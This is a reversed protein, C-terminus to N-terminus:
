PEACLREYDEPTNVSLWARRIARPIEPTVVGPRGALMRPAREGREAMAELLARARPDFLAPMPEVRGDASRPLVVLTDDERQSLLWRAAVPEARPQDCAAIIWAARPEARLAALIGALPGGVGVADAVRRLGAVVPLGNLEEPLEGLLVVEDVSPELAAVAVELLTRGRWSLAAKPAGMRRSAGGVLVGGLVRESSVPDERAV